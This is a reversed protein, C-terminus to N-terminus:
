CQDTIKMNNHIIFNVLGLGHFVSIKSHIVFHLLCFNVMITNQVGMENLLCPLDVHELRTDFPRRLVFKSGGESFM